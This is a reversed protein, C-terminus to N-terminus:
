RRSTWRSCCGTASRRTSIPSRPRTTRTVWVRRTSGEPVVRAMAVAREALAVRAAADKVRALAYAARVSLKGDGVLPQLDAGFEMVALLKSVYSESLCLRKATERGSGGLLRKLLNFKSELISQRRRELPIGVRAILHFSVAGGNQRCSM